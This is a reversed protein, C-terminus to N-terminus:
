SSPPASTRPRSGTWSPPPQPFSSSDRESYSCSPSPASLERRYYARGDTDPRLQTVAAIHIMHNMRRNARSLLHRNQEGFPMLRHAARGHSSGTATPSAPSMASTPWSVPPSPPEVGHIDMLRSGRTIVIAKLEATPKKIKNEVAVLEALGEVAICRRTKGPSTM